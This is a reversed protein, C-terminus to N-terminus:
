KVLLMKKSITGQATTLNYFYVGSPLNSADFTIEYKGTEYVSNALIKVEKGLVDYVVLKVNSRQPISFSINTTPNFPNLFNQM